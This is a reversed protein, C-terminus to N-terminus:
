GALDHSFVHCGIRCSLITWYCFIFYNNYDSGPHASNSPLSHLVVSFWLPARRQDHPQNCSWCEDKRSIKPEVASVLNFIYFCNESIPINSKLIIVKKYILSSTAIRIKMGLHYCIFTSTHETVALFATCILIGAAYMYAKEQSVGNNNVGTDFYYMLQWLCVPQM